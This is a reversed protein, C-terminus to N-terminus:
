TNPVSDLERTLEETSRQAVEPDFTVVFNNYVTTLYLIILSAAFASESFPLQMNSALHVQQLTFFAVDVVLIAISAILIALRSPFANSTAIERGAVYFVTGLLTTSVLFLQGNSLTRLCAHFYSLLGPSDSRTLLILGGLWIPLMTLVFTVTLEVAASQHDKARTKHLPGLLPFGRSISSLFNKVREM